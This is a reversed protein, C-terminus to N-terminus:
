SHQIGLQAAQEAGTIRDPTSNPFKHPDKSQRHQNLDNPHICRQQRPTNQKTRYTPTYQDSQPAQLLLLVLLICLLLIIEM